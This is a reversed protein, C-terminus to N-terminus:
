QDMDVGEGGRWVPGGEGQARAVADLQLRAPQQHRGVGVVDVAAAAEALEALGRRAGETETAVRM